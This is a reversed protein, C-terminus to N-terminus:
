FPIDDDGPPSSPLPGADFQGTDFTAGPHSSRPRTQASATREDERGGLFQINDAVIDVAQGKSGDQRTFERWRLRGDVAVARGKSNPGRLMM